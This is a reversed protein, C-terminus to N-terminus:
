ARACFVDAPHSKPAPRTAGHAGLYWLALYVLLAIDM